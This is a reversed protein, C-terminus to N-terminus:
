ILPRCAGSRRDGQWRLAPRCREPIGTPMVASDRDADVPIRLGWLRESSLPLDYNQTADILMSVFDDVRRDFPLGASPLGLKRAVSSRVSQVDLQEGEIASTKMAEEILIEAQAQHELNFGLSAVKSLLKGQLLRCEGLPALLAESEWTLNPWENKQWLYKTM